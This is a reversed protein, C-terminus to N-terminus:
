NLRSFGSHSVGGWLLRDIDENGKECKSIIHYIGDLADFYEEIDKEKHAMCAYFNTSALFGKQLMEQTLYTKYKQSDPSNFSYTSLAPLGSISIELGHRQSIEAWGERVGNGIATIVEWSKEREMVELAKLAATPGIRETWFTSSIFTKQAADMIERKGVIATLAYGNSITKGFVTLDPEVGYKKFLGGYTERFGSTCEDFILVIGNETALKRVKHLFDDEPGMNRVVEMKIVGINKEMVIKKLEEFNNYHFPYVSNKLNLPVGMPNLGPLLHNSLGDASDNHNVSLYWDHWGHYGCIAVNDKGAAARAIRIAIANAEGGSRAFRVMDAWPNIEILKEALYVEEPCNLTSMNGTKVVNMVAEDVEIHSYGLTNTGVGMISMDRYEKGDLDWVRCGATKSYYAPWFDPLFMEPRKSLLMTGGPILMKAKKYLEQGKGMNFDQKISNLFGENRLIRQNSFLDINNHIFNAYNLWTDNVGLRDVLISIADLDNPEDVTMRVHNFNTLAPFDSSVFLDGGKFTSNNRIYPTVHERDSILTTERWAKELASFTFVEIDQGDPYSETFINAGYDYGGDITKKVINDLLSADILPCDSTVRVVYDPSYPKAANYFRDLVDTLSGQYTKVGSKVAIEEIKYADPENTTAVIIQDATKSEKLRYLHTSLLTGDGLPQLVKGPFRSSGIRAQTIIIVKSNVM